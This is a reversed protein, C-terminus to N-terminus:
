RLSAATSLIYNSYQKRGGERWVLLFKGEWRDRLYFGKGNPKAKPVKVPVSKWAGDVKIKEIISAKLNAV